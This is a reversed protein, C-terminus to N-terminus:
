PTGCQGQWRHGGARRDLGLPRVPRRLRARGRRVRCPAARHPCSTRLRGGGEARRLRRGGGAARDAPRAPVCVEGAMPGMGDLLVRGADATAVVTATTLAGPGTVLDDAPLLPSTGYLAGVTTPIRLLAASGLDALTSATEVTVAVEAGAGLNGVSLVHVGKLAEEHLVALKGRGVAEEYDQRAAARDRAQAVLTRGEVTARLGTVVADFAVPFTLVAEIPGDEANRFIRTTMVIALGAAIAVEVRMATLPVPRPEEGAFGTVGDRLAALRHGLTFATM